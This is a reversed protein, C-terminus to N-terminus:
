FLINTFCQGALFLGFAAVIPAFKSKGGSALRDVMSGFLLAAVTFTIGGVIALKLAVMASVAGSCLPLLGFTAAALLATAIWSRQAGPALYYELLLAALSVALLLPVDLSPMINAPWFTRCVMLGLLLAAWLVSLVINLFYTRDKM